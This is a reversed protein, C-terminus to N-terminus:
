LAEHHSQIQSLIACLQLKLKCEQRLQKMRQAPTQEKYFNPNQILGLCQKIMQGCEELM